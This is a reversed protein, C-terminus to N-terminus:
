QTYGPTEGQGYGALECWGSLLEEVQAHGAFEDAYAVRIWLATLRELFHQEQDKCHRRIEILCEYETLSHDFEVACRQQMLHLTARYLLALAARQEGQSLYTRVVGPIDQPLSQNQLYQASDVSAQVAPVPASTANFKDRGLIQYRYAKLILWGLLGAMAMWALIELASALDQLGFQTSQQWSAQEDDAFRWRTMTQQRGFDESQLVREIVTAAEERREMASWSHGPLASGLLVVLFLMSLFGPPLRKLFHRFGLEIDWGELSTRRALYLAFGGAVYFPAMLSMALIGAVSWVWSMLANTDSIWDQFEWEPLLEGPILLLAGLVLGITFVGEFHVGVLTWWSGGSFQRGFVRTRAQWATNGPQELIAIPMFLSRNPSFRRWTLNGALRRRTVKWWERRLRPYPLDEGFLARGLWLVLVPEFLPKFWWVATGLYQPYAHLALGLLVTVPLASLWWLLWLKWFRQRAMQIGLDIAEWPNRPRLEATLRELEM